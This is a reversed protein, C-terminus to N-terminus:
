RRLITRATAVEDPTWLTTEVTTVDGGVYNNFAMAAEVAKQAVRLAVTKTPLAMDPEAGLEAHLVGIANDEGSGVAEYPLRHENVSFDSEILFLRGRVALLFASPGFEEVNHHVHLHGHDETQARLYPIFERVTWYEEDRGERPLFPDELSDTMHYQLIQGFRGSGVYGIALTDLLTHVKSQTGMRNSNDGSWQLDGALVVGKTHRVGVVVSM